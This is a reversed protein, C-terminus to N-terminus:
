RHLLPAWAAAAAAGALHDAVDPDALAAGVPRDAVARAAQAVAEPPGAGVVAM